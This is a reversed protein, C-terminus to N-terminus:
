LSSNEYVRIRRMRLILFVEKGTSLDMDQFIYYPLEAVLTKDMVELWLRVTNRTYKIDTIIGSFGNVGRGPPREEAVYIHRPLIAVKHISEGEHPVILKLGGCDVEM